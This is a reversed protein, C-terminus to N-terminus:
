DRDPPNVPKRDTHPTIRDFRPHAAAGVPAFGLRESHAHDESLEVRTGLSLAALGLARARAEALAILRRAHGQWRMGCDGPLKGLHLRDPKPTLFVCAQLADAPGIM